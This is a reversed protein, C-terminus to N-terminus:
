PSPSAINGANDSVSYEIKKIGEISFDLENINSKINNTLDGDVIDSATINNSLDIEENESIKFTKEKINIIPAEKDIKYEGSTLVNSVGNIINTIEIKYVGTETLTIDVPTNSNINIPNGYENNKIIKYSYSRVLSSPTYTVVVDNNTSDIYNISLGEM